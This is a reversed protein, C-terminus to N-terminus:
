KVELVELMHYRETIMECGLEPRWCRIGCFMDGELAVKFSTDVLSM